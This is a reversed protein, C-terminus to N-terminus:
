LEGWVKQHLEDKSAAERMDATGKLSRVVMSNVRPM